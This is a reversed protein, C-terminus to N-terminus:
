LVHQRPLQLKDPRKPIILITHRKTEEFIRFRQPTINLPLSPTYKSADDSISLNVESSSIRKKTKPAKCFSCLTDILMQHQSAVQNERNEAEIDSIKNTTVKQFWRVLKRFTQYEFHQSHYFGAKVDGFYREIVKEHNKFLLDMCSNFFERQVRLSRNSNTNANSDQNSDQNPESSQFMPIQERPERDVDGTESTALKKSTTTWLGQGSSYLKRSIQDYKQCKQTLDRMRSNLFNLSNKFLKSKRIMKQKKDLRRPDMTSFAQRDRRLKIIERAQGGLDRSFHQIEQIQYMIQQICTLHEIEKDEWVWKLDYIYFKSKIMKWEFQKEIQLCLVVLNIAMKNRINLLYKLRLFFLDRPLVQSYLFIMEVKRRAEAVLRRCMGIDMVVHELDNLDERKLSKARFLVENKGGVRSSKTLYKIFQKGWSIFGDSAVKSEILNDHTLSGSELFFDEHVNDNGELLIKSCMQHEDMDSTVERYLDVLCRKHRQRLQRHDLLLLKKGKILRLLVEFFNPPANVKKPWKMHRQLDNLTCFPSNLWKAFYTSLITSWQTLLREHPNGPILEIFLSTRQQESTLHEFHRAIFSRPPTPDTMSSNSRTSIVRQKDILHHM